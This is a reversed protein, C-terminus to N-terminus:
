LRINKRDTINHLTVTWDWIITHITIRKRWIGCIFCQYVSYIANIEGDEDLSSGVGPKRAINRACNVHVLVEDFSGTATLLRRRDYSCDPLFIGPFLHFQRFKLWHHALSTRTQSLTPYQPSSYLVEKISNEKPSCCDWHLTKKYWGLTILCSFASPFALM